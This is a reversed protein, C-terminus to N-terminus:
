SYVQLKRTFDLDVLKPPIQYIFIITISSDGKKEAESNVTGYIMEKQIEEVTRKKVALSLFIVIEVM